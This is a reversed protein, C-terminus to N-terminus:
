IHGHMSIKQGHQGHVYALGHMCFILIGIAAHVNKSNQQLLKM